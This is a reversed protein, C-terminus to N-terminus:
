FGRDLANLLTMNRANDLIADFNATIVTLRWRGQMGRSGERFPTQGKPIPGPAGQRSGVMYSDLGSAANAADAVRGARETLDTIVGPARRLDEFGKKHWVVKTVAM